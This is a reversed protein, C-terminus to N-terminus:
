DPNKLLDHSLSMSGCWDETTNKIGAGSKGPKEAVSESLM